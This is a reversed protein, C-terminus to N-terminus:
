CVDILQLNKRFLNGTIKLRKEAEKEQLEMGQIPLWRQMSHIGIWFFSFISILNSFNIFSEFHFGWNIIISFVEPYDSIYESGLLVDLISSEAFLLSQIWGILIKAFCKM